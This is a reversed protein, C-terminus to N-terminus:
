LYYRCPDWVYVVGVNPWFDIRLRYIVGPNPGLIKCIVGVTPGWFDAQPVFMSGHPIARQASRSVKFAKSGM